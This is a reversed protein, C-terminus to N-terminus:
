VEEPLSGNYNSSLKNKAVAKYRSLIDYSIWSCKLCEAYCAVRHNEHMKANVLKNIEFKNLTSLFLMYYCM